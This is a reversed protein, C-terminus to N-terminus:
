SDESESIFRLAIKLFPRSEYTPFSLFIISVSFSRLFLKMLQWTYYRGECKQGCSFSRGPLRLRSPGGFSSSNGSKFLQWSILHSSFRKSDIPPAAGPVLESCAAAMSSLCSSCRWSSSSFWLHLINDFSELMERKFFLSSLLSWSVFWSRVWISFSFLDILSRVEDCFIDILNLSSFSELFCFSNSVMRLSLFHLFQGIQRSPIFRLKWSEISKIVSRFLFRRPLDWSFSPKSSCSFLDFLNIASIQECLKRISLCFVCSKRFDWSWSFDRYSLFNIYTSSLKVRSLAFYLSIM